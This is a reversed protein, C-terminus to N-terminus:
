FLSIQDTEPIDNFVKNRKLVDIVTKTLKAKKQIEEVTFIEGNANDRIEAINEAANEGVGNLSAFPLRIKGDEIKYDFAASKYIDVPLFRLNRAYMELVLLMATMVENEKQTAEIGKRDTEEVYRRISDTGSLALEADIGEPQATFYSAYFELPRYVKFWGLRMASIMYASAHAKPFMYEIKNCSDIYWDPVEHKRMIEEWERKLGKGKRVSETIQYAMNSDMGKQMLYLMIDDRIGIVKSLTCINNKILENANGLWVGKGHSLGSIQLLDAFTKPQAEIIMQRVFKTGVEPIGFTGLENYIDKPNVGISKTSIFLEMVNKDNMPLDRVDIGTLDKLIKYKTPVDHGLLDLKQIVGELIDGMKADKYPFHTTVVGSKVDDAPHQVPTFDYIEYEKPVVIIGGPHQGTTRKVGVCSSVLFDTHARNLNIKKEELYKMVFGFATKDALAGITGARFVNESGFLEETYRHSAAQIMGSFNLDIDPAKTGDFGMFTEFPIDQGDQALKEGCGPCNKEPLDYGSGYSGDTIFEPSYKCDQNKCYYHPPLPNVESIGSMTAAFSSGVSGRSGVLYGQKESESVLQVAAAYLAAFGNGIIASLEKELRKQVIEPLPDKYLERAKKYCIERLKDEAGDIKPTYTGKPIPRVDETMDAIKNTNEVVIEYAKEKSIYTFEDLMEETTRYYLPIHRDADPFKMGTLLIKRSIEDHRRLFHVDGTAVVPKNLKEGLEIIKINYKKLTEEDPVTGNNVLFMNNGIPQVELYDYFDAIKELEGDEKGEVIASFLEGSECASGIILGERYHELVSKPIRARKYFYDLYSESVIKYLNKLGTKNKVLIIIHNTQKERNSAMENMEFVTLVGFSKLQETMNMFIIALARADDCARHHQFDEIKYFEVLTDLRHNKLDKNINRSMALTDLYPNTFKYKCVSAYKKIFGIDFAANHAVLMNNGAFDFFDKLAEKIKPADKVTEDSIGTLETIRQPIPMEPNVFTNFEEVIEGEKIRVAGIETIGCSSPSLGTTEIDFIVFTDKGFRANIKGFVSNDTDDLLYGEIGYIVKFNEGDKLKLKEKQLMAEPFGQVNGHDTIAVATHGTKYAYKIIEDPKITADMNSMTTHLHLEIRKKGATDINIIEKTKILSDLNIIIEDEFDSFEAEGSIIVCDDEEIKKLFESIIEDADILKVIISSCYDTIKINVSTKNVRRMGKSDIAFIKGITTVFGSSKGKESNYIFDGDIKRIPVIDEPGIIEEPGTNKESKESNSFVPSQIGLNIKLYGATLIENQKDYIVAGNKNESENEGNLDGLDILTNTVAYMKENKEQQIERKKIEKMIKKTAKQEKLDKTLDEEIKGLIEKTNKKDQEDNKYLAVVGTLEIDAEFDFEAAIIKKLLAVFESAEELYNKGGHALYIKIKNNEDINAKIESDNLFWANGTLRKTEIIIQNFYEECFLEKIYKPKLSMKNLNYVECLKQETNHLFDKEVLNDFCLYVDIIREDRNALIKIDTANNLINKDMESPSYKNFIDFFVKKDKEKEPTKLNNVAIESM